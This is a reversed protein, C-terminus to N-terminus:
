AVSIRPHERKSLLIGIVFMPLIWAIRTQYRDTLGSALVCFGANAALVSVIMSVAILQKEGLQRINFGLWLVCLAIVAYIAIDLGYLVMSPRNPMDVFEPDGVSDPRIQDGFRTPWVWFWVFQRAVHQTLNGLETGPYAMAARFVIESEEARIRDMQEPTARGDLGTDNFLFGGVTSPIRTGFVECVAYRPTRCEKELYWRAPGDSVSRALAHPYHKAVVSTEGFAVFGSALTIIGGVIFPAWLWSLRVAPRTMSARRWLAIVTGAVCLWLALPAISAHVAVALSAIAALAWRVGGSLRQLSTFMIIQCAAVIGAFVDPLALATAAPLSTGAGLALGLILYSTRSAVGLSSAAVACTFAALLSQLLALGILDFAPWRFAYALVSYPISRVGKVGAAESRANQISNSASIEATAGADTPVPSLISGFKGAAFEIAVGGGKVYAASDAIYAPRGFLILPWVLFAALLLTQWALRRDLRVHAEKNEGLGSLAHGTRIRDM